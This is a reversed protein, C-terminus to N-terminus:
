KENERLEAAFHVRSITCSGLSSAEAARAANAMGPVKDCVSFRKNCCLYSEFGM